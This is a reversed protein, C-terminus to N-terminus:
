AAGRGLPDSGLKARLEELRAEEAKKAALEEETPEQFWTSPSYRCRM